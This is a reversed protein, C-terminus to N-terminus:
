EPEACPIPETGLAVEDILLSTPGQSERTFAIGVALHRYGSEPRTDIDSVGAVQEGDVRLDAAGGSDAVAVHAQVCVWRDRPLLDTWLGDFVEPGDVWLGPFGGDGLSLGVHHWPSDPELLLLFTVSEVTSGAPVLLHLRVHLDAASSAAAVDQGVAAGGAPEWTTARLAGGGRYVEGEEQEVEGGHLNRDEWAALEPSEFGDCFILGPLDDDCSTPDAGVAEVCEGAVCLSGAPCGADPGCGEEEVLTCVGSGGGPDVVCRTGEPCDRDFSCPGRCRGYRCVLGEGCGSDDSCRTGLPWDTRGEICGALCLAAVLAAVAATRRPDALADEHRPVMPAHYRSPAREPSAVPGCM